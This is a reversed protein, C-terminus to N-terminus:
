EDSKVVHVTRTPFAFGVGDATLRELIELNIAQQTDMYANYDASLLYYVVEFDLSSDGFAMFHARDFRVGEKSSVVDKVTEAVARLRAPTTDYTVGFKLVVRRENMRKFNQIRSGTLEQNPIVIEEGQLAQLRTTKLGIQKVVGMHDGTVIFDGERFPKDMFLAFSSFLDGLINQVALAVAVGGIGLGAVLSVVNVGLNSLILLAGVCWLALMITVRLVTPLAATDGARLSPVASVLAYEIATRAVAIGVYTVIALMGAKTVTAAVSPLSLTSVALLLAFITLMWSPIQAVLAIVADDASMRSRAALRKLHRLVLPLGVGFALALAVFVAGATLYRLLTNGGWALQLLALTSDLDHPM